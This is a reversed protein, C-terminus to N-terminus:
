VKDERDPQRIVAYLDDLLQQLPIHYTDAVTNMDCYPGIVCGVCALKYHRFIQTTQPWRTLVEDVTLEILDMPYMINEQGVAACM